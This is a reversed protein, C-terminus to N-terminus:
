GLGRIAKKLRKKARPERDRPGRSRARVDPKRDDTGTCRSEHFDLGPKGSCIGTVGFAAFGLHLKGEMRDHPYRWDDDM